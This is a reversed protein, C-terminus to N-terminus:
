EQVADDLPVTGVPLLRLRNLARRQADTLYAYGDESYPGLRYFRGAGGATARAILDLFGFDLWDSQVGLRAAYRRGGSTFAVDVSDADYSFTDVIDTPAFAGRSVAGFREILAAYPRPPYANEGDFAVLLDPIAELIERPDRLFRTTAGAVAAARVDPDLPDLLGAEGIGRMAQRVRDTKLLTEDNSLEPGRLDVDFDTMQLARWALDHCPADRPLSRYVDVAERASPPLDRWSSGGLARRERITLVALALRSTQPEESPVAAFFLRHVSGRDRLVRNLLDVPALHYEVVQRYTEGDVRVSLVARTTDSYVHESRTEYPNYSVHRVSDVAIESLALDVVGRRRLLDAAARTLRRLTDASTVEVQWPGAVDVETVTVADLYALADHPFRLRGARADSLLRDRGAGSILGAEAWRDADVALRRASMRERAQLLPAIIQFQFVSAQAPLGRAQSLADLYEGGLVRVARADADTILKAARLSDLWQVPPATVTSDVSYVAMQNPISTPGGVGGFRRATDAWAAEIVATRTLPVGRDLCAGLVSASSDALLGSAQSRALLVRASDPSPFPQAGVAGSNVALIVTLILRM